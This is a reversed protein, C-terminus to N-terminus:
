LVGLFIYHNEIETYGCYLMFYDGVQHDEENEMHITSMENKCFDYVVYPLYKM